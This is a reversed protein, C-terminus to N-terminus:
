EGFVDGYSVYATLLSVPVLVIWGLGFPISAVIAAVIYIVGFVLFPVVNKLTAAVSLKLAEVPPTQRLAVLAPAFWLAMTVIAGLLLTVTLAAFGAGMAALMGGASMHRSGGGMTIGLVAGVGLLGAVLMIVITAALLLAGLVLLNAFRPGQFGLFLDGVELVGGDRLKRAALMWSGAFVPMLLSIAVGGLLPVISLVALMVLLVLGLVLWWSASRMFLAWADTWWALGRDAAVSRPQPATAAGTLTDDIPTTNM